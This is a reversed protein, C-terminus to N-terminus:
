LPYNHSMKISSAPRVAKVESGKYYARCILACLVFPMQVAGPVLYNSVNAPSQSWNLRTFMIGGDVGDSAQLGSCREVGM